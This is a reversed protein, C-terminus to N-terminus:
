QKKVLNECVPYYQLSQDDYVDGPLINGGGHLPGGLGYQVTVPVGNLTTINMLYVYNQTEAQKIVVALQLHREGSSSPNDISFNLLYYEYEGDQAPIGLYLPHVNGLLALGVQAFPDEQVSLECANGMSDYTADPGAFQRIERILQTMGSDDLPTNPVVYTAAKASSFVLISLSLIALIYSNKRM